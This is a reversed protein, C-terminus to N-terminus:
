HSHAKIHDLIERPTVTAVGIKGVEVAAAHNALEAAEVPSGGAALVTAVVATVTDGAGSVDYVARAATPVRVHGTREAELAMGREGLTLLLQECGLRERTRAMWEADEPYIFAGLADGLEKANPKLVTVGSFAFFNRRKPDVISPIGRSNSVDLATAIVPETLVGKNYDELVVVDAEDAARRVAAALNLGVAETVDSEDERDFRVIQQHRAMVRTKVTTPRDPTVVIGSTDIGREEFAGVLAQGDADEGVCGVAVCRAGLAAINAAVNGAGGIAAQEAEVRVVPVPAEPSVREVVGTIYRDVMLDGAVVARVSRVRALLEEARATTLVAV